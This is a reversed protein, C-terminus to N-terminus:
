ILVFSFFRMSVFGLFFHGLDRDGLSFVKIEKFSFICSIKLFIAKAPNVRAAFRSPTENQREKRKTEKERRKKEKSRKRESQNAESQKTEAEAETVTKTETESETETKTEAEAM